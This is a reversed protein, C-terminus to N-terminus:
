GAAESELSRRYDMPSIGVYRSFVKSFYQSSAFGVLSAVECIKYESGRLLKKAEKMRILLLYSMVTTGTDKKFVRSLYSDSVHLSASVDSVSIPEAYHQSMYGIAKRITGSYFKLKKDLIKQSCDSFYAQFLEKIDQCTYCTGYHKMVTPHEPSCAPLKVSGAWIDIQLLLGSICQELLDTDCSPQIYNTFLTELLAEARQFREQYISDYLENLVSPVSKASVSDTHVPHFLRTGIYQQHDGFVRYDFYKVCAEYLRTIDRSNQRSISFTSIYNHGTRMRFYIQLDHISLRLAEALYRYSTDMRCLFLFVIDGETTQFMDQYSLMEPLFSCSEAVSGGDPLDLLGSRRPVPGFLPYPLEERLVIMVYTGVHPQFFTRAPVSSFPPDPSKDNSPLAQSVRILHKLLVQSTLESKLILGHIGAEMIRRALDFDASQDTVVIIKVSSDYQLAIRALDLGSGVSLSLETLIIDPVDGKEFQHIAWPVATIRSSIEFGYQEWPILEEMNRIFDANREAIMIRLM